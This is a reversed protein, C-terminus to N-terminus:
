ITIINNILTDKLKKECAKNLPLVEGNTLFLLHDAIHDVFATNVLFGRYSPFFGLPILRENWHFLSGYITTIGGTTHFSIHQSNIGTKSIYILNALDIQKISDNNRILTYAHHPNYYDNCYDNLLKYLQEYNSDKSLFAYPHVSLIDTLNYLNTTKEGTFIISSNALPMSRITKALLIGSTEGIKLNIFYLAFNKQFIDNILESSSSYSQTTINFKINNISYKLIGKSLRDCFLSDTDCIAFELNLMSFLKGRTNKKM